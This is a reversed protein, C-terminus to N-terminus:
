AAAWAVQTRYANPTRVSRFFRRRGPRGSFDLVSRPGHSMLVDKSHLIQPPNMRGVLLNQLADVQRKERAGLDADDAAVARALGGEQADHGALVLVEEALRPWGIADGDTVQGLLRSEIGLLGHEAVHLLGDRRHLLQQQAKVLDVRPQARVDRRLFHLLQQFLM